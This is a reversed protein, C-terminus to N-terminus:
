ILKQYRLFDSQSKFKYPPFIYIPKLPIYPLTDRGVVMKPVLYGTISDDKVQGNASSVNLTGVTILVLIKLSQQLM